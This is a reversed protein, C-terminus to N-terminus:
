PDSSPGARAFAVSIFLLLMLGVVYILSRNMQMASGGQYQAVHTALTHTDMSSCRLDGALDRPAGVQIRLGPSRQRATDAVAITAIPSGLRARNRDTGSRLHPAPANPSPPM